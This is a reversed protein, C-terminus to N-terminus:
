SKYEYLIHLYLRFSQLPASLWTVSELSEAVGSVWIKTEVETVRLYFSVQAQKQKVQIQYM